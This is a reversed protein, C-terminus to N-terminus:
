GCRRNGQRCGIYSIEVRQDIHSINESQAMLKSKDKKLKQAKDVLQAERAGSLGSCLYNALDSNETLLAMLVCQWLDDTSYLDIRKERVLCEAAERNGFMSALGLANVGDDDKTTFDCKPHSLIMNIITIKAPNNKFGGAFMTMMLATMKKFKPSSMNVDTRQCNLLEKVVAPSRGCAALMLPTMGGVKVNVDTSSDKILQKVESVSEKAVASHM